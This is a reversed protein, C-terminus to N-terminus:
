QESARATTSTSNTRSFSPASVNDFSGAAVDNPSISPKFAKFAQAPELEEADAAKRKREQTANFVVSKLALLEEPSPAFSTSPAASEDIPVAVSTIVLAGSGDEVVSEAESSSGLDMDDGDDQEKPVVVKDEELVEGDEEEEEAFPLFAVGDLDSDLSEGDLSPDAEVGEGGGKLVDPVVLSGNSTPPPVPESPRLRVLDADDVVTPAPDTPSLRTPSPLVPPPVDHFRFPNLDHDNLDAAAATPTRDETVAPAPTPEDPVIVERGKGKDVKRAEGEGAEEKSGSAEGPGACLTRWVEEGREVVKKRLRLVDWKGVGKLEDILAVRLEESESFFSAPSVDIAPSSLLAAFPSVLSPDLATLFSTWLAHTPSLPTSSTPASSTPPPLVGLVSPRFSIARPPLFSHHGNALDSPPPPPPQQRDAEERRGNGNWNGFGNGNGNAHGNSHHPSLAPVVLSSLSLSRQFPPALIKERDYGETGPEPQAPPAAFKTSAMSTRIKAPRPLPAPVPAAPAPAPPADADAVPPRIKKPRGVKRKEPVLPAGSTSQPPLSPSPFSQPPPTPRQQQSLSAARQPPPASLHAPFASPGASSATSTSAHSGSALASAPHRCRYVSRQKPEVVSPGSSKLIWGGDPDKAKTLRLIFPCGSKRYLCCMHMYPAWSKTTRDDSVVLTTGRTAAVAFAMTTFQQPDSFNIGELEDYNRQNANDPTTNAAASTSASTTTTPAVTAKATLSLSSSQGHRHLEQDSISGEDQSNSNSTSTASPNRSHRHRSSSGLSSDNRNRTM